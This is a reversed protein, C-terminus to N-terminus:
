TPARRRPSRRSSALRRGRGARRRLPRLGAVDPGRLEEYSRAMRALKRLNAYRRRGDWQALVALDYDHEAVIRECLRELSLSPACRPSGTSASSSRRSSGRTGSALRRGADGERARRLAAAEAGGAAAARARRQLRRRVALRARRAAGRRRLPQAAAAPLRAPRGGAAPPLLRPRDRPLDAPRARAAGGRVDARRHGRRLPARDRGADGRGLRRARPRAARHAAGRGPALPRRDRRLEGQRDRAARGGARLRSRPLPRRGRAAPVDDGFDAAFLHNIM